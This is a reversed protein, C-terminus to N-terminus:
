ALMFLTLKPTTIILFVTGALLTVVQRFLEALTVSFTDQLLSVDSTIRSILEGTRRQDFFTMPLNVMRRYLALRIDRMSRESVKAFFWVRFFSFISQVFLIGLLILAISNIDS